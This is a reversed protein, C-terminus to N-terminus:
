AARVTFKRVTSQSHSALHFYHEGSRGEGLPFEVVHQGPKLHITNWTHELVHGGDLMTPVLEQPEPVMIEARLRTPHYAVTLDLLEAHQKVPMHKAIVHRRFRRYAVALLLLSLSILLGIRIKDPIIM